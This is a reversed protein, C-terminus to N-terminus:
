KQAAHAFDPLAIGGVHQGHICAHGWCRGETRPATVRYSAMSKVVAVVFFNM